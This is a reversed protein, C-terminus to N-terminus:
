RGELKAVDAIMMAFNAVDAAEREIEAHPAGSTIARALEDAEQYLREVLWTLRCERWGGKHDNRRLAIEMAHAFDQVEPRLERYDIADATLKRRTERVHADLDRPEEDTLRDFM